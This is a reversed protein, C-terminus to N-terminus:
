YDDDEDDYGTSKFDTTRFPDDEMTLGALDEDLDDSSKSKKASAKVGSKKAAASKKATTKKASPKQGNTKM